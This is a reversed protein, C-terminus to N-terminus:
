GHYALLEIRWVISVVYSYLPVYGQIMLFRGLEM